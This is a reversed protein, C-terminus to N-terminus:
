SFLLIGAFGHIGFDIAKDEHMVYGIGFEMVTCDIPRTVVGDFVQAAAVAQMFDDEHTRM